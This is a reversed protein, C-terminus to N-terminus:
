LDRMEEQFLKVWAFKGIDLHVEIYVALLHLFFFVESLLKFAIWYFNIECTSFLDFSTGIGNKRFFLFQKM